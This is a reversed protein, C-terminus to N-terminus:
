QTSVGRKHQEGPILQQKHRLCAIPSSPSTEVLMATRINLHWSILKEVDLRDSIIGKRECLSKPLIIRSNTREQNNYDGTIPNSTQPLVSQASHPLVEGFCSLFCPTYTESARLGEGM